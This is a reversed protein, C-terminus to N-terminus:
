WSKISINKIFCDVCFQVIEKVPFFVDTETRPSEETSDIYKDIYRDMWRDIYKDIYRDIWRDIYKDIYRDM